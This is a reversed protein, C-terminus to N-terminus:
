ASKPREQLMGQHNGAINGLHRIRPYVERAFLTMSKVTEAHSLFGAQLMCLLHGFGGTLDHFRLIQAVVEDPTGAMVVGSEIQYDLGRQRIAATRGAFEGKLARVNVDVGVYGPPNRFQPPTKSKIFWSLKEAGDRAEAASDGVFVLPMFALRGNAVEPGEACGSRYIDFLQRVVGYPQLFSAFHYGKRAIEAVAPSVTSGTTWIPPHPNQWPRPWVNVHRKHWHKGEFNFPGDHRTWAHRILEIGEWLRENTLTPNTNSCFIEYPVGRVFGCDLRGRSIVDIMAMEEAVRIPDARNAMPNGLICIRARKTQRALIAASLPASVDTCTATQHHENLMIDLGLDDAIMHEDLYRQYLDAGIKPDYYSNPISVRVSDITDLDPLHPYPMETFHWCRM